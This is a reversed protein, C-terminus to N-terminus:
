PRKDIIDFAKERIEEYEEESTKKNSAGKLKKLAKLWDPEEIDEVKERLADRIFETRNQYNKKEVVKDINKLFNNELRLTILKTTM